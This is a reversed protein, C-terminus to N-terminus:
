FCTDSIKRPIGFRRGFITNASDALCAERDIFMPDLIMISTYKTPDIFLSSPNIPAIFRALKSQHNNNETQMWDEKHM